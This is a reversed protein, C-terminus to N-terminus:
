SCPPDWSALAGGPDALVVMLYRAVSESSKRGDPDQYVVLTLSEEAGGVMDLLARPV